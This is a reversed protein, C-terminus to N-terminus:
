ELEEEAKYIYNRLEEKLKYLEASEGLKYSLDTVKELVDSVGDLYGETYERSMEKKIELM